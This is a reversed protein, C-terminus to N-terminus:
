TEEKREENKEQNGEERGGERIQECVCSITTEHDRTHTMKSSITVTNALILYFWSEMSLACPGMIEIGLVRTENNTLKKITFIVSM